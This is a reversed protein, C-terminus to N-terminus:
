KSLCLIKETQRARSERRLTQKSPAPGDTQWSTQLRGMARARAGLQVAQFAHRALISWPRRSVPLFRHGLYHIRGIAAVGFFREHIYSLGASSPCMSGLVACVPLWSHDQISVLSCIWAESWPSSFFRPASKPAGSYMLSRLTKTVTTAAVSDAPPKIRTLHSPRDQSSRRNPRFTKSLLEGQRQRLDAPLPAELDSEHTHSAPVSRLLTQALQRLSIAARGIFVERTVLWM